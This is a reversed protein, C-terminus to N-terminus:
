RTASISFSSAASVEIGSFFFGFCFLFRDYRYKIITPDMEKIINADIKVNVIRFGVTMGWSKLISVCGDVTTVGGGVRFRGAAIGEGAAGFGGATAVAGIVEAGGATEEEGSGAFGGATAVEGVVEGM